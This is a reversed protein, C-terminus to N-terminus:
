SLCMWDVMSVISHSRQNMTTLNIMNTNRCKPRAKTQRRGPRSMSQDSLPEQPGSLRTSTSSEEPTLKLQDGNIDFDTTITESVTAELEYWSTSEDFVIDLSVQVKRASPNFCKYGKQEVGLICKKLRPDPKHRRDDLIHVFAISSFIRVYSLDLKKGYFKEHPTVDHVRSTTFKKM